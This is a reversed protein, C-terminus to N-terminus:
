FALRARLTEHPGKGWPSGVPGTLRGGSHTLISSRLLRRLWYCAGPLKGGMAEPGRHVRCPGPMRTLGGFAGWHPINLVAPAYPLGVGPGRVPFWVWDSTLIPVKFFRQPILGPTAPLGPGKLATPLSAPIFAFLLFPHGQPSFSLM